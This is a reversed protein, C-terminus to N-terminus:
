TVGKAHKKASNGVKKEVSIMRFGEKEGKTVSEM